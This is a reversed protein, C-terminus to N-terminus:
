VGESLNIFAHRGGFEFLSALFAGMICYDVFNYNIHCRKVFPVWAAYERKLVVDSLVNALKEMSAVTQFSIQFNSDFLSVPTDLV